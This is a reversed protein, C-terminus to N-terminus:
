NGAWQRYSGSLKDILASLCAMHLPREVVTQASAEKSFTVPYYFFMPTTPNVKLILYQLFEFHCSNNACLKNQAFNVFCKDKMQDTLTNLAPASWPKYTGYNLCM